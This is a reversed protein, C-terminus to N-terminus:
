NLPNIGALLWSRKMKIQWQSRHHGEFQVELDSVFRGRSISHNTGPERDQDDVVNLGQIMKRISGRFDQRPAALQHGM